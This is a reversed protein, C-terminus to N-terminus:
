KLNECAMEEPRTGSVGWGNWTGGRVARSQDLGVHFVYCRKEGKYEVEACTTTALYEFQRSVWDVVKVDRAIPAAAKHKKVRLLKYGMREISGLVKDKLKGALSRARSGLKGSLKGGRPCHVKAIRTMRDGLEKTKQEGEIRATEAGLSDAMAKFDPGQGRLQPLEAAISALTRLTEVAGRTREVAKGRWSKAKERAGDVLKQASAGLEQWSALVNAGARECRDIVDNSPCAVGHDRRADEPLCAALRTKLLALEARVDIALLRRAEEKWRPLDRPYDLRPAHINSCKAAAIRECTRALEGGAFCEARPFLHSTRQLMCEKRQPYTPMEQNCRQQIATCAHYAPGRVDSCSRFAHAHATTLAVLAVTAALVLLDIKTLAKM